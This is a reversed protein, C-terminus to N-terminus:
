DELSDIHKQNRDSLLRELRALRKELSSLKERETEQQVVLTQNNEELGTVEKILEQIVSIGTTYIYDYNLVHFDDVQRGYVFMKNVKEPLGEVIFKNSDPCATVTFLKEGEELVISVKDGVKLQHDKSLTIVRGDNEVSVSVPFEYIDPVNKTQLTVAEPFIEAVEQAIFGRRQRSGDKVIDIHGYDVVELQALRKRDIKVPSREIRNKMRRDSYAFFHQAIIEGEAIMSVKPRAGLTNKVTAPYWYAVRGAYPWPSVPDADPILAATNTHMTLGDYENLALTKTGIRLYGAHIHPTGTLGAATNAHGASNAYNM